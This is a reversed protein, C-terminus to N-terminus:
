KGYKNHIDGYKNQIATKLPIGMAVGFAGFNRLTPVEASIKLKLAAL